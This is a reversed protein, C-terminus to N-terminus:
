LSDPDWDGADEVTLRCLLRFHFPVGPGNAAEVTLRYTGYGSTLCRVAPLLFNPVWGLPEGSAVLLADANYENEPDPQFELRDGPQLRTIREDAGEVYRVGHAPFVFDVVGSDDATPVAFVQITDTARAGGSRELIEIPSAEEGLALARLLTSYEPRKRSIVRNNFFPFLESSEYIYPEDPFNPFPEFNKLEAVAELDYFFRFKPGEFVELYGVKHYTREEPDQWAVVLRRTPVDPHTGIGTEETLQSLM